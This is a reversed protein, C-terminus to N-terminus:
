LKTIKVPCSTSAKTREPAIWLEIELRPRFCHDASALREKAIRGSYILYDKVRDARRKAEGARGGRKGYVIIYIKSSQDGKLKDVLSNLLIKEDKLVVDGFRDVLRTQQGVTIQMFDSPISSSVGLFEQGQALGFAAIVFIFAAIPREFKKINM